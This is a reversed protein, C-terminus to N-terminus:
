SMSMILTLVNVSSNTYLKLKKVNVQFVDPLTRRARIDPLHVVWASLLKRFRTKVCLFSRFVPHTEIVIRIGLQSRFVGMKRGEQANLRTKLWFRTYICQFFALFTSTKIM